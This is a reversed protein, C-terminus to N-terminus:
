FNLLRLYNPYGIRNFNLIFGIIYCRLLGLFYHTCPLKDKQVCVIFARLEDSRDEMCTNLGM